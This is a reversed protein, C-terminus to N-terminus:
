RKFLNSGRGTCTGSGEFDDYLNNTTSSQYGNVRLESISALSNATNGNVTIRVYRANTDSPLTYTEYSSTRGSSKGSFVNTFSSADNSVSIVFNYQRGFGRYWAIDVSCITMKVGLDTQIWSGSGQHAWRTNLNNDIANLVPNAAASASATIKSIPLKQCSPSATSATAMSPSGSTLPLIMPSPHDIRANATNVSYQEGISPSLQNLTILSLLLLSITVISGSTRNMIKRCRIASKSSKKLSMKM